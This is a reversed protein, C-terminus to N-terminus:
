VDTDRQATAVHRAGMQRFEEARELLMERAYLQSAMAALKVLAEARHWYEAPTPVLARGLAIEIPFIPCIEKIPFTDSIM